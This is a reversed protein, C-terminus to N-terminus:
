EQERSNIPIEDLFNLWRENLIQEKEKEDQIKEQELQEEIEKIWHNSLGFDDIDKDEEIQYQKCFKAKLKPWSIWQDKLDCETVTCGTPAHHRCKFWICYECNPHKERWKKKIIEKKM